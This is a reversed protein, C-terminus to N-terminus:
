QSPGTGRVSPEEVRTAAMAPVQGRSFAALVAERLLAYAEAPAVGEALPGEVSDLFSLHGDANGDTLVLLPSGEGTESIVEVKLSMFDPGERVSFRALGLSTALEATYACLGGPCVPLGDADLTRVETFPRIIGYLNRSSNLIVVPDGPRCVNFLVEMDRNDLAVCGETWDRARDAGTGRFVGGGHIAIGCGLGPVCPAPRSRRLANLIRMYGSETVIGRALARQADGLNPYTIGLTRHFRTRSKRYAVFYLGEPTALDHARYKDSAPDLGFSASFRAAELGNRFFVVERVAKDIVVLREPSVPLDAAWAGCSALFVTFFLICQRIFNHLRIM